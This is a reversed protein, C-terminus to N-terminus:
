RERQSPFHHGPRADVRVAQRRRMAWGGVAALVVIAGITVLREFSGDGGDPSVGWLQEIWDM